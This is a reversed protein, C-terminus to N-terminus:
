CWVAHLHPVRTVWVARFSTLRSCCSAVARWGANTLRGGDRHVGPGTLLTQSCRRLGFGGTGCSV